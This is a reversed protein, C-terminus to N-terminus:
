KSINKCQVRERFNAKSADEYGKQHINAEM